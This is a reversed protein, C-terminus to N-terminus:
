GPQASIAYSNPPHSGRESLCTDLADRLNLLSNQFTTDSPPSQSTDITVTHWGSYSHMLQGTQLTWLLGMRPFLHRQHHRESKRLVKQSNTAPVSSVTITARKSDKKCVIFSGCNGRTMFSIVRFPSDGGMLMLSIPSVVM